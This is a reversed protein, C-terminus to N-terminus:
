YLNEATTQKPMKKREKNEFLVCYEETEFFSFEEETTRIPFKTYHFWKCTQISASSIFKSDM